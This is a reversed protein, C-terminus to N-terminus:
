PAVSVSTTLAWAQIDGSACGIGFRKAIQAPGVDEAKLKFKLSM